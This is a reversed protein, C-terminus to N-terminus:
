TQLLACTHWLGHRELHGSSSRSGPLYLYLSLPKLYTKTTIKTGEISIKLDLFVCSSSPKTFDWKIQGCNNVDSKFQESHTCKSGLILHFILKSKGNVPTARM